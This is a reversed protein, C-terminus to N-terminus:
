CPDGRASILLVVVSRSGASMAATSPAERPPGTSGRKRKSARYEPSARPWPGIQGEGHRYPRADGLVSGRRVCEHCLKAEGVLMRAGAADVIEERDAARHRVGRPKARALRRVPNEDRQAAERFVAPMQHPAADDRREPVHGAALSVKGIADNAASTEHLM